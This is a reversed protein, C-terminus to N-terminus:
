VIEAILETRKAYISNIKQREPIQPNQVLRYRGTQRKVNGIKMNHFKDKIQQLMKEDIKKKM